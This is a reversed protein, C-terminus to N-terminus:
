PYPRRRERLFRDRAPVRKSGGAFNGPPWKDNNRVKYGDLLLREIRYECWEDDPYSVELWKSYHAELLARLQAPFEEPVPAFTARLRPETAAPTLTYERPRRRANRTAGIRAVKYGDDDLLITYVGIAEPWHSTDEIRVPPCWRLQLPIRKSAPLDM